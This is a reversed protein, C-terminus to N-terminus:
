KKKLEDSTGTNLVNIEKIIKIAAPIEIDFAFRKKTDIDATPPVVFGLGDATRVFHLGAALVFISVDSDKYGEKALVDTKDPSRECMDGILVSHGYSFTKVCVNGYAWEPIDDKNIEKLM